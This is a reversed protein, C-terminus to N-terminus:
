LEGKQKIKKDLEVGFLDYMCKKCIITKGNCDNHNYKCKRKKLM